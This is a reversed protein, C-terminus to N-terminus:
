PETGAQLAKVSSEFFERARRLRSAVTGPPIELSAAIQAMTLEEFEYLVFVTRLDMPMSALVDDLLARARRVELLQEADYEPSAHEDAATASPVERSRSARKRLDSAVRVATGYLYARESGETVAELRNAFVIFVQQAADEVQSEPVGFRRLARWVADYHEDMCARLRERARPSPPTLPLDLDSVMSM